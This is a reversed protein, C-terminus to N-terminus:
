KDNVWRGEVEVIILDYVVPGDDNVGEWHASNEDVDLGPFIKSTKKVCKEFNRRATEGDNYVWVMHSEAHGPNLDYESVIFM